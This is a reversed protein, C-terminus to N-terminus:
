ANVLFRVQCFGARHYQYMKQFVTATKYINESHQIWNTNTSEHNITITGSYVVNHNDNPRITVNSGNITEFNGYVGELLLVESAGNDIAHQITLFPNNLSGNGLEDNGQYSVYVTQSFIFFPLFSLLYFYNM